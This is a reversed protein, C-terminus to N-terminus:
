IPLAHQLHRAAHMYANLDRRLPHSVSPSEIHPWPRVREWLFRASKSMIIANLTKSAWSMHLLDIPELSAFIEYLVDMPMETMLKLQGRKGRVRGDPRSMASTKPDSYEAMEHHIKQRKRSSSGSTPTSAQNLQTATPGKGRRSRAQGTSTTTQPSPVTLRKDRLRASSRYTPTTMLVLLANLCLFWPFLNLPFLLAPHNIHSCSEFSWTTDPGYMEKDPYLGRRGGRVLRRENASM